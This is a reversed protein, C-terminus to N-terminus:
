WVQLCRHCWSLITYLIHLFKGSIRQSPYPLIRGSIKCWRAVKVVNNHSPV